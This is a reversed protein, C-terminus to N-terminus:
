DLILRARQFRALAAALLGLDIILLIGSIVLLLGTLDAEVLWKFVRAQLESPLVMVGVSPLMLLITLPILLVQQAQRVTAARLSILIGLGGVLGSGLLGFGAAGWLVSPRYFM